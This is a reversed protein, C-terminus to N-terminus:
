YGVFPEEDSIPYFWGGLRGGLLQGGPVINANRVVLRIMEGSRVRLGSIRSPNSINGLSARIDEYNPFAAQDREIRWALDTSGETWGAGFVANAIRDIVGNRGTPVMFELVTAEAGIAPMTVFGHSDFSEFSAPPYLWPPLSQVRTERLSVLADYLVAIDPPLEKELHCTM